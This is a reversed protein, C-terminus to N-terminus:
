DPQAPPPGGALALLLWLAGGALLAAGLWVLTSAGSRTREEYDQPPQDSVREVGDGFFCLLQSGERELRLLENLTDTPVSVDTNLRLFQIFQPLPRPTGLVSVTEGPAIHKEARREITPAEGYHEDTRSAYAKNIDASDYTPAVLAEGAGERIFFVGRANDGAHFMYAERYPHGALRSRQPKDSLEEIYFVCEQRSVPATLPFPSWAKGSTVARQGRRLGSLATRPARAFAAASGRRVMGVILLAAGAVAALLPLEFGATSDM